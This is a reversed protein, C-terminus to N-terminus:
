NVPYPDVQIFLLTYIITIILPLTVMAHFDQWRLFEDPQLLGQTINTTRNITLLIIAGSLLTVLYSVKNM